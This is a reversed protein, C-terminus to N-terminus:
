DKTRNPSGTNRTEINPANLQFFCEMIVDQGASTTVLTPKSDPTNTQNEESM